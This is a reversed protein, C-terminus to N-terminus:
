RRVRLLFIGTKGEKFITSLISSVTTYDKSGAPRIVRLGMAKAWSKHIYGGALTMVEKVTASIPQIPMIM